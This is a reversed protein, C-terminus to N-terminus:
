TLFAFNPGLKHTYFFSARLLTYEEYTVVRPTLGLAACKLTEVIRPGWRRSQAEALAARTGFSLTEALAEVGDPHRISSATPLLKPLPVSGRRGGLGESNRSLPNAAADQQAQQAQQAQQTEEEQMQRELDIGAVGAKTSADGDQSSSLASATDFSAFYEKLKKQVRRVAPDDRAEWHAWRWWITAMSAFYLLFGCLVHVISVTFILLHVQLSLFKPNLLTCPTIFELFGHLSNYLLLRDPMCRAYSPYGINRRVQELALFSVAPMKGPGCVPYVTVAGDCYIGEAAAVSESMLSRRKGASHSGAAVEAAPAYAAASNYNTYGGDTRMTDPIGLSAVCTPDQGGCNCFQDIPNGCAAYQLTCQQINSTAELCCPCQNQSYM